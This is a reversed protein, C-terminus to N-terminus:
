LGRSPPTSDRPTDLPSPGVSGNTELATGPPCQPPQQLQHRLEALQDEVSRNLARLADARRVVEPALEVAPAPVTTEIVQPRRALLYAGVGVAAVSLM